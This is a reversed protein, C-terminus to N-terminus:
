SVIRFRLDDHMSELASQVADHVSDELDGVLMDMQDEDLDHVAPFYIVVTLVDDHNTPRENVAKTM